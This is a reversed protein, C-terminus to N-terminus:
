KNASKVRSGIYGVIPWFEERLSEPNSTDNTSDVGLQGANNVGFGMVTGDVDKVMTHYGGSSVVVIEKLGPLVTSSKVPAATFNIRGTVYLILAEDIFYTSKYGCAIHKIDQLPIDAPATHCDGGIGLEGDKTCGLGLLKKDETLFVSHFGGSAIQMINKPMAPIEQFINTSVQAQGTQGLDNYGCSYVIGNADLLLTFNNGCAISECKFNTIHYPIFRDESDGTGLQGFINSGFTYISSDNGICVTHNAGCTVSQIANLKEVKTPTPITISEIPFGLQGFTNDGFTWVNGQTDVCATFFGGASVSIIQSFSPIQIPITTYKTDTIGLQDHDNGGIVWLSGENDLSVTHYYGCSIM